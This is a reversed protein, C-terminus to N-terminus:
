PKLQWNFAKNNNALFTGLGGDTNNGPSFWPAPPGEPKEPLARWGGAALSAFLYPNTRTSEMVLRYSSTPRDYEWWWRGGDPGGSAGQWEWGLAPSGDSWTRAVIQFTGSVVNPDGLTVTLELCM